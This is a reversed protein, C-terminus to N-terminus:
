PDENLDNQCVQYHFDPEYRYQKSDLEFQIIRGMDALTIFKDRIADHFLVSKGQEIKMVRLFNPYWLQGLARFRIHVSQPYQRISTLLKRLDSLSVLTTTAEM